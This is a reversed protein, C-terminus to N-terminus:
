GAIVTYDTLRWGDNTRTLTAEMRMPALPTTDGDAHLVKQRVTVLRVATDTTDPIHGSDVDATATVVDGSRRWSEWRPDTREPTATLISSAAAALDGGLWPAARRVAEGSSPDTVPQWTFMLSLAQAAVISPDATAPDAVDPLEPNHDHGTAPGPATSSISDNDGCGSLLAAFMLVAAALLTLQRRQHRTSTM